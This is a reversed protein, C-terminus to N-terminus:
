ANQTIVEIVLKGKSLKNNEKILVYYEKHLFYYKNKDFAFLIWNDYENKNCYVESIPNNDSSFIGIKAGYYKNVGYSFSSCDFNALKNKDIIGIYLRDIDVDYYNILDSSFLNYAFVETRVGEVSLDFKYFSELIFVVLVFVIVTLIMKPIWDILSFTTEAKKNM